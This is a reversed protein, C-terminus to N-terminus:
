PKRAIVLLHASLGLLTPEREVARAARLLHERRMPDDWLDGVLWGPGEIGFITAASSRRKM